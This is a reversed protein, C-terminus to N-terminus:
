KNTHSKLHAINSAKCECGDCSHEADDHVSVKKVEVDTLQTTADYLYFLFIENM